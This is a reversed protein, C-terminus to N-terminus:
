TRMSGDTIILLRLGRKASSMLLYLLPGSRGTAISYSCCSTLPTWSKRFSRQRCRLAEFVSNMIGDIVLRGWGAYVWLQCSWQTVRSWHWTGPVSSRYGGWTKGDCKDVLQCSLRKLPDAVTQVISSSSAKVNREDLGWQQITTISEARAEGYSM